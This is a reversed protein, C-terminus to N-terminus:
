EESDYCEARQKLIQLKLELVEKELKLKKLAETDDLTLVNTTSSSSSVPPIYGPMSAYVQESSFSAASPNSTTAPYASFIAQSCCNTTALRAIQRNHENQKTLEAREFVRQDIVEIQYNRDAVENGRRWKRDELERERQLNQATMEINSIRLADARAKAEREKESLYEKQARHLEDLQLKNVQIQQENISQRQQRQEIELATEADISAERVRKNSSIEQSQIVTKLTTNLTAFGSQFVSALNNVVNKNTDTVSTEVSIVSTPQQDRTKASQSKQLQKQLDEKQKGLDAIVERLDKVVTQHQDKQEQNTATEKRRKRTNKGRENNKEHQLRAAEAAEAAQAKKTETDAKNKLYVQIIDRNTKMPGPGIRWVDFKQQFCSEQKYRKFGRPTSHVDIPVGYEPKYIISQLTKEEKKVWSEIDVDEDDPACYGHRAFHLLDEKEVFFTLGTLIHGILAALYKDTCRSRFLAVLVFESRTEENGEEDISCSYWKCRSILVRLFGNLRISLVHIQQWRFYLVRKVDEFDIFELRHTKPNTAPEIPDAEIYHYTDIAYEIGAIQMRFGGPLVDVSLLAKLDKALLEESKRIDDPRCDTGDNGGKFNRALFATSDSDTNEKGTMLFFNHPNEYPLLNKKFSRKSNGDISRKEVVLEVVEVLNNDLNEDDKSVDLMSINSTGTAPKGVSVPVSTFVFESASASGTSATVDDSAPASESATVSGLASASVFESASDASEFETLSDNTCTPEFSVGSEFPEYSNTCVGPKSNHPWVLRHILYNVHNLKATLV